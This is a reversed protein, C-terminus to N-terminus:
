DMSPKGNSDPYHPLRMQGLNLKANCREAIVRTMDVEEPKIDTGNLVIERNKLYFENTSFGHSGEEVASKGFAMAKLFSHAKADEPTVYHADQTAVIGVGLEKGMERVR